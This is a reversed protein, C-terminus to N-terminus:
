KIGLRKRYRRAAQRLVRGPEPPNLLREVFAESDGASLVIMTREQISRAAASEASQLVFDTLSRGELDAARQILRKQSENLRADFRYSKATLRRKKSKAEPM